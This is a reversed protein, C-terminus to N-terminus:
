KKAEEKKPDETTTDVKTATIDATVTTTGPEGAITKKLVMAPSGGLLYSVGGGLLTGLFFGQATNAFQMSHEGIPLFVVAISFGFTFCTIMVIYWYIKIFRIHEYNKEDTM